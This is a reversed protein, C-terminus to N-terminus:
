RLRAPEADGTYTLPFTVNECAMPADPAMTVPLAVTGTGGAPVLVSGTFPGVAIATAPCAASPADVAARVGTVRIEYSQRNTITVPVTTTKGPLLHEVAGTMTFLPPSPATGGPGAAPPRRGAPAGLAAAALLGVVLLLGILTSAALQAPRALRTM